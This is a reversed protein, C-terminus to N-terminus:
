LQWCQAWRWCQCLYLGAWRCPGSNVERKAEHFIGSTIAAM